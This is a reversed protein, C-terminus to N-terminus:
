LIHTHTHTQLFICIICLSFTFGCNCLFVHGCAALKYVAAVPWAHGTRDLESVTCITQMRITTCIAQHEREQQEGAAHVRLIATHKCGFADPQLWPVCQRNAKQRAAPNPHFSTARPSKLKVATWRQEALNLFAFSLPIPSSCTQTENQLNKYKKWTGNKGHKLQTQTRCPLRRFIPM